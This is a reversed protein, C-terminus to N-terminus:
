KRYLCYIMQKDDSQRLWNTDSLLDIMHEMKCNGENLMGDHFWVTGSKDIIRSRFHGGGGYIIGCLSLRCPINNHHIILEIDPKIYVDDIIECIIMNPVHDIIWSQEYYNNNGNGNGACVNCKKNTKHNMKWNLINSICRNNKNWHAEEINMIPIKFDVERIIRRHNCNSCCEQIHAFSHPEWLKSCLQDIYVYYEGEKFIDPYKSHLAYRVNNRAIEFSLQKCFLKNFNFSVAEMFSGYSAFIQTWLAPNDHWVNYLITFIADYACSYNVSDWKLGLPQENDVMTKTCMRKDKHLSDNNLKNDIIESDDNISRKNKSKTNRLLFATNIIGNNIEVNWTGNDEPNKIKSENANWKIAPHWDSSQCANGKYKQYSRILPNRLLGSVNDPLEGMHKLYTIDNLMELERFEQRLYGGIGSTIRKESFGQLIITKAASTSRSLCTYYSQTSYCHTLDVPNEERSKGQSAYDTMAFNPLVVVQERHITRTSDNPLMCRVTTTTRPIPVVNLPLGPIQINKPPKHLRVFLTNLVQKSQPGIHSDWGAVFGEQGKTICLETADNHRIMIPMGICLSLRGPIHDSTCPSSNWLTNRLHDTM